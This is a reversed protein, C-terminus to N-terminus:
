GGALDLGPAVAAAGGPLGGTEVHFVVGDDDACAVRRGPVGPCAGCGTVVWLVPVAQEGGALGVDIGAGALQLAEILVGRVVGPVERAVVRDHQELVLVRLGALHHVGRGVGVAVAEEEDVVAVHQGLAGAVRVLRRRQDTGPGKDIADGPCRAEVQLRAARDFLAVARRQGLIPRVLAFRDEDRRREKAAGIPMRHGVARVGAQEVDRGVM